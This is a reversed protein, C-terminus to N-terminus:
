AASDAEETAASMVETLQRAEEPSLVRDIDLLLKIRGGSKGIGMILDTEACM